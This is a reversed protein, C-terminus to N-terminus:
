PAFFEWVSSATSSFCLVCGGGGGEGGRWVPHCGLLLPGGTPDPAVAGEALSLSVPFFDSFLRWLAFRRVWESKRGGRNPATDYLCWALYPLYWWWNGIALLCYVNLLMALPIYVCWLATAATQLRRTIPVLLPARQSKSASLLLPLDLLLPLSLLVLLMLLAVILINMTDFRIWDRTIRFSPTHSESGSTTGGRGVVNVGQKFTGEMTPARGEM